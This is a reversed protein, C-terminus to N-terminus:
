ENTNQGKIFYEKYFYFAVFFLGAGFISINLPIDDTKSFDFALFELNNLYSMVVILGNNFLHALISVWLNKTLYYISGLMIGMFFIALFNHLQVHIVAFVFGSLVIALMHSNSAEKFLNMFVGRFTLEEGIGPLISMMFFIAIFKLPSNFVLFSKLTKESDIEAQLLRQIISNDMIEFPILYMFKVLLDLVFNALFFLIITFLIAQLSPVKNLKLFSMSNNEFLFTYVFVPVIFTGIASIIQIIILSNTNSPITLINERLPIGAIANALFLGFGTFLTASLLVIFIFSVIKLIPKIDHFPSTKSNM